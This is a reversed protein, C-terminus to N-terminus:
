FYLKVGQEGVASVPLNRKKECRPNKEDTFQLNMPAEFLMSLIQAVQEIIQLGPLKANTWAEGQLISISRGRHSFEEPRLQKKPSFFIKSIWIM